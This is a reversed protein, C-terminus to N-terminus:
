AARRKKPKARAITMRVADSRKGTVAAIDDNSLGARSLLIEIKQPDKEEGIRAERADILLALIGALAAEQPIVHPGSSGGTSAM